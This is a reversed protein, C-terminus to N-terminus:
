GGEEGAGETRGLGGIRGAVLQRYDVNWRPQLAITGHRVEGQDAQQRVFSAVEAYGINQTSQARSIVSLHYSGTGSWRYIYYIDELAVDCPATSGPFRAALQQEFLQDCNCGEPAYGRVADFLQRSWCSGAHLLSRLPGSLEHDNWFWAMDSKFFGKQPEFNAVSFSLRRPLYVDDDDWAFLLDHSALAVAANLKEGLTRFRRPVNIVRVEPHDFVLTQDAYDNLVIMEKTGAYDQQLFSYIAEELLGPRAYTLCFCSVAPQNEM